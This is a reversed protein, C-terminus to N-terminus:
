ASRIPWKRYDEQLIVIKGEPTWRLPKAGVQLRAEKLLIPEGTLEGQENIRTAIFGSKGDPLGAVWKGDPSHILSDDLRKNVIAKGGDVPQEMAVGSDGSSYCLWKGNLRTNEKGHDHLSAGAMSVIYVGNWKVFALKAKSDPSWSLGDPHEQTALFRM